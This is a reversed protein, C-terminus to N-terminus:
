LLGPVKGTRLALLRQGLSQLRPRLGGPSAPAAPSAAAAQAATRDAAADTTAAVPEPLSATEASAPNVGVWLCLCAVISWWHKMESEGKATMFAM